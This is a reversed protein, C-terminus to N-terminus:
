KEASGGDVSKEPTAVTPVAFLYDLPKLESEGKKYVTKRAMWLKRQEDYVIQSTVTYYGFKEFVAETLIGWATMLVDLKLERSKRYPVSSANSVEYFLSRLPEESIYNIDVKESLSALDVVLRLSEEISGQVLRVGEEELQQLASSAAARIIENAKKEGLSDVLTKAFAYLLTDYYLRSSSAKSVSSASGGSRIFSVYSAIDPLESWLLEVLSLINLAVGGDKIYISYYDSVDQGLRAASIIISTNKDVVILNDAPERNIVHIEAFEKFGELSTIQDSTSPVIIKNKVGKFSAERLEERLERLIRFCSKNLVMVVEEKAQKLEDKLAKMGKNRERISWFEKRQVGDKDKIQSFLKALTDLQEEMTLLEDRKRDVIPKLITTPPVARCMYRKEPLFEVFGKKELKRVNAYVKTRPVSAKQALESMTCPGNEVLAWYIRSEHDSLGFESLDRYKGQRQSDTM